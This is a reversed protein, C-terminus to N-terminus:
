DKNNKINADHDTKKVLDTVNPKKNEVVTLAAATALSTISPVKGKIKDIKNDHNRKTVLGNTDITIAKKVLGNYM